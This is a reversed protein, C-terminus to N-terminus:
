MDLMIRQPDEICEKIRVLMSVAERGDIIRHDYSHALYMIPRVKIEDGVVWPRKVINHMGLIGSQPANIIPTSLMSGYIGGNTITFSGGTMEELTLKGDRARLGFDKIGKEIDAFSMQDADRLVPVVLGTPTGVAVGIDYYNKYVIEDGQIEANVAPFEKLAVIAAKVFYSMFGLRVGHTKEFQDRYAARTAMVASMDVENFTTLMAATNQAEKLRTAIIKRLRTMKVREERPGAPVSPIQHRPAGSDAAAPASAPAAAPAASAGGSKQYALVDGKTLRGDKGTAPIQTADYGEDEILKRVAPSMQVGDDSAVPAPAATPAAAPAPAAAAGGSGGLRGLIAGVEVESGVDALIETLTGASPANVEMTVKDTELELLPEDAAVSDGVSKLWSAVTGETLSEGLVPVVIDVAEGGGAAPAPAAAAAPAPAAEPAPAAAGDGIVGLLAGVEVEAGAEASIETLTGAVPANVEMTVKDTELELIPEDAAVADGVSKLWTAVTAETLSEGLTPVKIETAM